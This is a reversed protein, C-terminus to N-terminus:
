VEVYDDDANTSELQVHKRKGKSFRSTRKSIILTSPIDKLTQTEAQILADWTQYSIMLFSFKALYGSHLRTIKSLKVRSGFLSTLKQIGESVTQIRADLKSIDIIQVTIDPNDRLIRRAYRLLFDDNEEGLVILISSIGKFDRNVFIGVSCNCNEIFYRTKDRILTGPYFIAQETRLRDLWPIRDYWRQEKMLEDQSMSAGAGILLFDYNEANVKKIIETEIIDAVKYETTIPINLKQSAAQVDIFSEVSFQEGYIPNTDTGATIHLVNVELSNKAGDLITKAVRLLNKGNEPNGLAIMAKFVGQAQQRILTEKKEKAPFIYEILSLLPTAMFTTVLAMIVLMTFIVPPLIGMELGINLVVLEMLGRTNMLIGLSLSDKLSEGTIRATVAGGGFKGIVAVLIFVLCLMWLEPTNLLGIETKLGTYVFFLPLLLTVSLDEIKDMMLKRFMPLPPMILGALFAGFLAHIGLTQTTYASIILILIFFGFINKNMLEEKQYMNGIRKLFPRIVFIMLITYIVTFILTYLSSSFDGTNAIAIVAVLLIWATVDNIAASGISVIGLHTKSLGKEQVIRALVPFATISMSIGIFLAFSMYPTSAPAFEIYIFYSLIMGMLFPIIISTQSIVFTQKLKVKLESMNLDMGVTFMFLILGIQSVIYLTDLYKPSFLFQFTDPFIYGLLSPGLVIGAIIEGIVTPQGIRKFLSSFIRSVVLIAIIQLLIMGTPELVNQLTLKRFLNFNDSNTANLIHHGTKTAADLSDGKIRLLYIAVGFVLLVVTFFWWSKDKKKM